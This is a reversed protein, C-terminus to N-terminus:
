TGLVSSPILFYLYPSYAYMIKNYMVTNHKTSIANESLNFAKPLRANLLDIPM